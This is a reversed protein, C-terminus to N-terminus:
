ERGLIVVIDANTPKIEGAPLSGVEGNLTEALLTAGASQKGTLDVVVTKIHTNKAANGKSVVTVTPLKGKLETETSTSLGTVSTGNYLAVKLESPTPGATPSAQAINIPGVEVVKKQVPDYLIAKQAQAYILVIDGNKAQAFFAQQKLKNVDSVTAVQPKENPPLVILKGVEEVVKTTEHQSAKQPDKLLAQSEQYQMYYYLAGGLAAVVVISFVLTLFLSKSNFRKSSTHESSTTSTQESPMNENHSLVAKLTL